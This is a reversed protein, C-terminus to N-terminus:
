RRGAARHQVDAAAHELRLGTASSSSSASSVPMGTTVVSIAQPANGSLWGWCTPIGPMCPVTAATPARCFASRSIVSPARKSSRTVPCSAVKAGPAFIMWASMSGASIPLFRRASTGITPSQLSTMSRVSRGGDRGLPCCPCRPGSRTTPAARRGPPVGVRQAVVPGVVADSDGCYTMWRIPCSRRVRRSRRRRADALVLHPGRLEDAVLLRAGPEVGATQARHAVRHGGRHAGLDAHGSVTTQAMSPSPQKWIVLWSSAVQAISPMGILTATILLPLRPM